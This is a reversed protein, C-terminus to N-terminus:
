AASAAAMAARAAERGSRICAPIGAGRYSAGALRVTPLRGALEREMREVHAAHGVRYLPLAAPWRSLRQGVPRVAAGTVQALEGLMAATLAEDDMQEVRRDGTHGASLRLVGAGGEAADPWKNAFFSGATILHGDARPVLFGNFGAPPRWGGAEVAVTLLAVSTFPIGALGSPAVPGLVAAAAAAPVALVAGAFDAPPAGEATVTVGLGPRDGAGAVGRVSAAVFDAGAGRLAEALTVALRAAGGRPTLFVPGAPGPARRGQARLGLLLSRSSRAAALLQPATVEASLEDLAAAHIGGLLPEVLRDAVQRGFRGAVLRGVSADAGIRTPPLVLDLGARAVGAPGLLGSRVVPLLRGPVGLVLGEPLPRLRGGTWLLTRGAAPAVLDDLGIERCLDVADPTRVLFSDPGEDVTRGAFESARLKGGVRDPEFVTVSHGARLLEWAAALGAIGGGAVAFRL